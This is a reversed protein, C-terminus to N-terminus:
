NSANINKKSKRQETTRSLCNAETLSFSKEGWVRLRRTLQICLGDNKTVRPINLFSTIVCEAQHQTTFSLFCDLTSFAQIWLHFNHSWVWCRWQQFASFRSPSFCGLKVLSTDCPVPGNHWGWTLQESVLFPLQLWPFCGACVHEWM